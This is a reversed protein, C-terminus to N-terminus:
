GAKEILFAPEPENIVTIKIGTVKYFERLSGLALRAVELLNEDTVYGRRSFVEFVTFTRPLTLSQRNKGFRALAGIASDLPRQCLGVAIAGALDSATGEVARQEQESRRSM